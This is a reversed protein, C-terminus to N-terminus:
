SSKLLIHHPFKHPSPSHTLENNGISISVLDRKVLDAHRNHELVVATRPVYRRPCNLAVQYMM